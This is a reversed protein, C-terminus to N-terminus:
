EQTVVTVPVPVTTGNRLLVVAELSCRYTRLVGALAAQCKQLREERERQLLARAEDLPSAEAAEQGNDLVETELTM